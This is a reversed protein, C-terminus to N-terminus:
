CSRPGTKARVMKVSKQLYRALQTDKKMEELLWYKSRQAIDRANEQIINKSDFLLNAPSRYVYVRDLDQHIGGLAYKYENKGWLFHFQNAGRKICECITLFCVLTGLRFDDYDPDHANVHSSVNQGTWYCIAGAGIQGDIKILSLFGNSKVLRSIREAEAHDIASVKKKGAMRLKNLNIVTLIDEDRIDQADAVEHQFNPLIRKARSLHHKVNKRTSKGLKALYSEESQPLSLIINETFPFRRMCFRSHKIESDIAHFTIKRVSLYSTFIYDAFHEIEEQSITMGENVVRAEDGKIQFILVSRVEGDMRRLYTSVSDFCSYEKLFSFSSLLNGYLAALDDEIIRPVENHYCTLSSPMEEGLPMACSTHSELAKM